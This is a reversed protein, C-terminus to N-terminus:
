IFASEILSKSSFKRESSKQKSQEGGPEDTCVGHFLAKNSSVRCAHICLNFKTLLM